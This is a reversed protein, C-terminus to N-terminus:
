PIKTGRGPIPTVRRQFHQTKVAPRGPFERNEGDKQESDRCGERPNKAQRLSAKSRMGWVASTLPDLLRRRAWDPSSDENENRLDSLKIQSLQSVAKCPRQYEVSRQTEKWKQISPDKRIREQTRTRQPVEPRPGLGAPGERIQEEKRMTFSVM